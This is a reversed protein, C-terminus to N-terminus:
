EQAVAGDEGVNQQGVLDVARRRLRLGRKELRHLLPLHRNVAFAM